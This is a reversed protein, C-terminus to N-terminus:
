GHPAPRPSTSICASTASPGATVEPTSHTSSNDLVVHLPRRPDTRVLQNLFALFQQHTHRQYCADTVEGTVIALAAYLSTTGNRKYDHTM